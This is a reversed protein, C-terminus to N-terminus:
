ADSDRRMAPRRALGREEPDEQVQLAREIVKMANVLGAAYGSAFARAAPDVAGKGSRSLELLKMLEMRIHDITL